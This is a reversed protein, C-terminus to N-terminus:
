AKAESEAQGIDLSDALVMPRLKPEGYWFLVGSRLDTGSKDGRGGEVTFRLSTRFPYFDGM